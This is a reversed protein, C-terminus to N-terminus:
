AQLDFLLSELIMEYVRLEKDAEQSITGNFAMFGDVM